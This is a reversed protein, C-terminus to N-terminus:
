ETITFYFTAGEGVKSEAWIRGGHREIAREVTALGIGTGEFENVGHLRQFPKFLKESFEMDFGAGNDRVFYVTEGEVELTGFEIRAVEKQSTFKWANGFLNQLIARMLRRDCRTKIDEQITIEVERAQDGRQLEVAVEEAMLSLNLPTRDMDARTVRSLGLIDEILNGMRNAAQRIRKLYDKGQEDVLESYDELLAQSFGDMTRLPARLDHSVTYAFAELEKNAAALEATREEVLQSLQENLRKVEREARVRETLDLHSIAIMEPLVRFISTRVARQVQDDEELVEEADWQIGNALVQSCGDSISYEQHSPAIEELKKGLIPTSPIRLLDETAPNV